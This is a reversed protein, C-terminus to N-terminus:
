LDNAWYGSREMVNARINIGRSRLTTTPDKYARMEETKGTKHYRPDGPAGATVTENAGYGTRGHAINSNNEIARDITRPPPQHTVEMMSKYPNPEFLNQYDPTNVHRMKNVEIPHLDEVTKDTLPAGHNVLPVISGTFGSREMVTRTPVVIDRVLPPKRYRDTYESIQDGVPKQPITLHNRTFADPERKGILSRDTRWFKSHNSEHEVYAQNHTTSGWAPGAGHNEGNIPNEKTMRRLTIPDLNAATVARIKDNVVRTHPSEYLTDPLPENWYGSREMAARALPRSRMLTKISSEPCFVEHSHSDRYDRRDTLPELELPSVHNNTSYGTTIVSTGPRATSPQQSFTANGTGVSRSNLPWSTNPRTYSSAYTTTYFSELVSDGGRSRWKPEDITM